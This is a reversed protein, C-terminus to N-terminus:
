MIFNHEVQKKRNKIEKMREICPSCYWNGEPIKSLGCCYFHCYNRQCRDCILLNEPDRLSGCMYCVDDNDEMSKEKKKEEEEKLKKRIKEVSLPKKIGKDYIYIKSYKKKCLPCISSQKTWEFLCDKCFDHNCGDPNALELINNCCIICEADLSLQMEKNETNKILKNFNNKNNNSSNISKLEEEKNLPSSKINNDKLSNNEPNVYNKTNRYRKKNLYENLDNQEKSNVDSNSEDIESNMFDDNLSSNEYNSTKRIKIRKKHYRKNLDNVKIETQCSYKEYLEDLEDNLKEIKNKNLNKSNLKYFEKIEATELIKNELDDPTYKYDDLNNLNINSALNKYNLDSNKLLKKKKKINLNNKLTSSINEM